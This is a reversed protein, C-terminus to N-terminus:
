SGGSEPYVVHLWKFTVEQCKMLNVRCCTIVLKSRPPSVIFTFYKALFQVFYRQLALILLEQILTWCRMNSIATNYTLWPRPEFLSWQAKSANCRILWCYCLILMLSYLFLKDRSVLLREQVLTRHNLHKQCLLLSRILWNELSSANLSSILHFWQFELNLQLEERIHHCLENLIVLWWFTQRCFFIWMKDIFSAICLFIQTKVVCLQQWVIWANWILPHM